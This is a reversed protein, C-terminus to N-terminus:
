SAGSAVTTWPAAQLGDVEKTALGAVWGVMATRLSDDDFLLDHSDRHDFGQAPGMAAPIERYQLAM